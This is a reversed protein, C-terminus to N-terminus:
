KDVKIYNPDIYDVNGYDVHNITHGASKKKSVSRLIEDKANQLNYNPNTYRMVNPNYPNPTDVVNDRQKLYM